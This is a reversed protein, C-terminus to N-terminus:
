FRVPQDAETDLAQRVAQALTAKRYPKGLLREVGNAEQKKASNRGSTHLVKLSPKEILARRALEVGDMGGAMVIDSFLLDIRFGEDLCALAEKGSAACIVKYGLDTLQREVLKRMPEEDEVVLVIENRALPVEEPEKGGEFAGGEGGLAPSATGDPSPPSIRNQRLSRKAFGSITSLM